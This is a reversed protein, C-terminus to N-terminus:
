GGHRRLVADFRRALEDMGGTVALATSAAAQAAAEAAAKGGQENDKMYQGLHRMAKDLAANKDAIKYKRVYGVFVREKGTGEFQELVELGAVAAAVDESLENIPLPRGDSGFLKRPDFYAIRAIERLTKEVTITCDALVAEMAPRMLEAIRAQVKPLKWLTTARKYYANSEPNACNYCALYAPGLRQGNKVYEQCFREQKPTLVGEKLRM